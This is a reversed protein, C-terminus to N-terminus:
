FKEIFNYDVKKTDKSKTVCLEYEQNIKELFDWISFLGELFFM